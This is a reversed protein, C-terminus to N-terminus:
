LCEKVPFYRLKRYLKCYGGVMKKTSFRDIIKQRAAEGFTQLQNPNDILRIIRSVFQSNDGASITFGDVGDTIIEKLGAVRFAIIPLGNAMAELISMPTGEHLSTNIYLDLKQYFDQMIEVHGLMHVKNELGYKSILGELKKRGPGEGAIIFNTHPKEHCVLKAIEIFVDFQKVPFLRGASGIIFPSDSNMSRPLPLTKHPFIGNSIITIQDHPLGCSHNLYDATDNAVAVVQAFRKRLCAHNLKGIITKILSSSEGENRGHQTAVLKPRSCGFAILVALINEKYRHAHIIDPGIERAIKFARWALAPFSLKQEDLLYCTIGEQRCLRELRGRNLIILYLDIGRQRNLGSLLQFAM